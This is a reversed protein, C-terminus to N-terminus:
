VYKIYEEIPPKQYDDSNPIYAEANYVPCHYTVDNSKYGIGLYLLFDFLADLLPFSFLLLDTQNEERM